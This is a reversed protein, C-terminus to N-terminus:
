FLDFNAERPKPARAQSGCGIILREPLRKICQSIPSYGAQHRPFKSKGGPGFCSSWFAGGVCVCLSRNALFFFNFVSGKRRKKRRTREEM